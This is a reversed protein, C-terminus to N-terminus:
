LTVADEGDLLYVLRNKEDAVDILIASGPDIPTRQVKLKFKHRGLFAPLEKAYEAHTVIVMATHTKERARVLRM